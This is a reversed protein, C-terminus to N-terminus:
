LLSILLSQLEIWNINPVSSVRKILRQIVRVKRAWRFGYKSARNITFNIGVNSLAVFTANRSVHSSGLWANDRRARLGERYPFLTSRGSELGTTTRSFYIVGSNVDGDDGNYSNFPHWFITRPSTPDIKFSIIIFFTKGGERSSSRSINTNTSDCFFFFFFPLSFSFFELNNWRNFFFSRFLKWKM